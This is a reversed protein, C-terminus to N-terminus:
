LKNCIKNLIHIYTEKPMTEIVFGFYILYNIDIKSTFKGKPGAIGYGKSDLLDGVQMLECNRQVQYDISTSEALFAYNETKVKEFGEKNGTVLSKPNANMYANM